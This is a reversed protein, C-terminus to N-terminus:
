LQTACVRDHMMLRLVLRNMMIRHILCAGNAIVTSGYKIILCFNIRM